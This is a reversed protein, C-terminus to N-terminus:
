QNGQLKDLYDQCRNITDSSIEQGMEACSNKFPNSDAGMEHAPHPMNKAERNDELNDKYDESLKDKDGAMAPTAAFIMTMLITLFGHKLM